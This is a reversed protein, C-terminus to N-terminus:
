LPEHKFGFETYGDPKYINNVCATVDQLWDKADNLNVRTCDFREVKGNRFDAIAIAKGSEGLLQFSIISEGAANTFEAAKHTEKRFDLLENM